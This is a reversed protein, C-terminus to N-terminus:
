LYPRRYGPQEARDAPKAITFDELKVDDADFFVEGHEADYRPIGHPLRDLLKQRARLTQEQTM